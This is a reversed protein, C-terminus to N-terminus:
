AAAQQEGLVLDVEGAIAAIERAAPGKWSILSPTAGWLSAEPYAVRNAMESALVPLGAENLEARIHRAIVSDRTTQTLLCRFLPRRGDARDTLINLTDLMRDVDFPSPKVPVLVFDAAALCDLTMKSRFGPTDIIVPGGAALRRATKSAEETADEIVNVGGLRRERAALRMISRQPDADILTPHRGSLHWHVALCSALTSKGSGGKMTAVTIIM